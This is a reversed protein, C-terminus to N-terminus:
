MTLRLIDNAIKEFCPELEDPTRAFCFQGALQDPNYSSSNRDNALRMLFETGIDEQNMGPCRVEQNGANRAWEIEELQSGLGITYIVVGDNRIRNAINETLNRGVRHVNCVNSLDYGFPLRGHVSIGGLAQQPLTMNLDGDIVSDVRNGRFYRWRGNPQRSINIPNGNRQTALINPAGDSFVLMVRLDSRVGRPIANLDDHAKRMADSTATWGGHSLNDIAQTVRRRNFGRAATKNIPETVVAGSAFQVVGLRDGDPDDIFKGVFGNKAATQLAGIAGQMSGSSDLVMMIDPNVRIAQSVTSIATDGHGLIGMFFNPNTAQANVTVSWRGNGVPAVNTTPAGVTSRKFGAPYNLDFFRQAEAEANAIREAQTAGTALARAGAIAAADSAASLKAKIGYHRGTDIALGVFGIIMILMFAIILTVSGRQQKVSRRTLGVSRQRSPQMRTNM